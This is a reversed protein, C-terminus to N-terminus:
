PRGGQPSRASGAEARALEEARRAIASLWVKRILASGPYILRWYRAFTRNAAADNGQIRTDTSLVTHRADVAQCRMNFAVRIHGPAAFALFHAPTRVPPAGSCGCGARFSSEGWM